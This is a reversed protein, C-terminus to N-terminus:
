SSKDDLLNCSFQLKASKITIKFAPIFDNQTMFLYYGIKLDNSLERARGSMQSM